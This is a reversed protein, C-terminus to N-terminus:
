RRQEVPRRTISGRPASEKLHFLVIAISLAPFVPSVSIVTPVSTMAIVYGGVAAALSRSVSGVSGFLGMAASRDTQPVVDAIYASGVFQFISANGILIRAVVVSPLDRALFLVINGLVLRLAGVILFPRRGHRDSYSGVVPQILTAAGTGAFSLMGVMSRSFGLDDFLYVNLNPGLLAYGLLFVSFSFCLVSIRSIVGPKRFAEFFLRRGVDRRVSPPDSGWLLFVIAGVLCEAAVFTWLAPFGFSDAVLGGVVPGVAFGAMESSGLVGMNRGVREPTSIDSVLAWTTPVIAGKFIATSGRLLILHLAERQLAILLYIPVIAAMGFVMLIKRRGLYDSVAGWLPFSFTSISAFVTFVFGM